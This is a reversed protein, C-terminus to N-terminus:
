IKLIRSLDKLRIEYEYDNGDKFSFTELITLLSGFCKM